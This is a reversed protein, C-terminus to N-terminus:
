DDLLPAGLLDGVFGELAAARGDVEDREPRPYHGHVLSSRLEYCRTFFTPPSEGMYEREGLSRALRRGARGVSEQELLRLSGILAERENQPINDAARTAEILRAVHAVVPESRSEQEILTELAMMLTLMRADASGEFFSASYLDFALVERDSMTVGADAAAELLVLLKEVPKGIKAKAGISVFVPTPECEFVMTGHVDNFARRVQRRRRLRRWSRRSSEEVWKLGHETVFSQPARRGFDAGIRLLSFALRLRTAWEAAAEEGKERTEYGQGRVCLWDADRLAVGEACSRLIVREGDGGRSALVLEDASTELGVREGVSFRIRFCFSVTGFSALPCERISACARRPLYRATRTV